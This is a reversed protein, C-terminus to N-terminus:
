IVFNSPNFKKLLLDQNEEIFEELQKGLVNYTSLIKETGIVTRGCSFIPIITIIEEQNIGELKIRLRFMFREEKRKKPTM